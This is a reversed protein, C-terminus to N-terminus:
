EGAKILAQIYIERDLQSMSDHQEQAHRQLFVQWEEKSYITEKELIQVAVGMALTNLLFTAQDLIINDGQLEM